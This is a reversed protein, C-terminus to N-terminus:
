RGGGALGEYKVEIERKKGRAAHIADLEDSKSTWWGFDVGLLGAPGLVGIETLHNEIADRDLVDSEDDSLEAMWLIWIDQEMERERGSPEAAM